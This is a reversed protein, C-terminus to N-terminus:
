IYDFIGFTANEFSSPNTILEFIIKSIGLVFLVLLGATWIKLIIDVVKYDSMRETFMEIFIEKM